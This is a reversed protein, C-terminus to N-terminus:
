SLAAISGLFAVYSVFYTVGDAHVMSPWTTASYDEPATLTGPLPDDAETWGTALLEEKRASWAEESEPLQAFWVAIDTRPIAWHCHLAGEDILDAM